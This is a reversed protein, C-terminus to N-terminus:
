HRLEVAGAEAGCHRVMRLSWGITLPREGLRRPATDM